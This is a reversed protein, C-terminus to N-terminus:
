NLIKKSAYRCENNWCKNHDGHDVDYGVISIYDANGFVNTLDKFIENIKQQVKWRSAGSSMTIEHIQVQWISM